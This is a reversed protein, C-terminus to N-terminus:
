KDKNSNNDEVPKDEIPWNKKNELYRLFTPNNVIDTFNEMQNISKMIERYKSIDQTNNIVELIKSFENVSKPLNRLTDTAEITKLFESYNSFKNIDRSALMQNFIEKYRSTYIEDSKRIDRIEKIAAQNAQKNLYKSAYQVFNDIKYLYFMQNTEYFFENILEPLPSVTGDKTKLWWDEKNEDTVLVFPRKEEKAKSIIQFWVILDGYKSNMQKSIDKFGPPINNSYRDAGIGYIEVLKDQTYPVGIKGNFLKDLHTRISDNKKFEPHLKKFNSIDSTFLSISKDFSELVPKSEISPHYRINDLKEVLQKRFTVIVSNIQNYIDLQQNIVELRNRQYELAVQHPIWIRESLGDLINFLDQRTNQSYRYLNLLVNTDFSFVCSDWLNSFDIETPQYYGPFLDKM